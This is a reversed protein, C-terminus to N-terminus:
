EEPLFAVVDVEVLYDPNTLGAVFVGTIAPPNAATLFPQAALFGKRADQGQVMYISMKVVHEFGAGCAELATQINQMVQTTQAALDGKGTLERNVTVANQGGIYITKGKGETTVVQTFAPSTMLGSPNIHQTQNSM